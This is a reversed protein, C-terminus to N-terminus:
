PTFKEGGVAVLTPPIQHISNGTSRQPALKAQLDPQLAELAQRLECDAGRFNTGQDSLLEFQKGRRAPFRRLAMLCSDTDLSPLLDIHVARTTM